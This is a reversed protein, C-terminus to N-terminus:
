VTASGEPPDKEVAEEKIEEVKVDKIDKPGLDNQLQNQFDNQNINNNVPENAPAPNKAAERAQKEQEYANIISDCFEIRKKATKSLSNFSRGEPLKYARYAKAAVYMAEKDGHTPSEPDISAETVRQLARYEKSTTGRWREWWGGRNDHLITPIDKGVNYGGPKRNNEAFKENFAEAHKKGYDRWSNKFGRLIDKHEEVGDEPFEFHHDNFTQVPDALFDIMEERLAEDEVSALSLNNERLYDLFYQRGAVLLAGHSFLSMTDNQSKLYIDPHNSMEEQEEFCDRLAKMVRRYEQDIPTNGHAKVSAAYDKAVPDFKCDENVYDPSVKYLDDVEEGVSFVYKIKDIEPDFYSGFFRDPDRNYLHSYERIVSTKIVTDISEENNPSTNYLFEMGRGGMMSIGSIEDYAKSSHYFVHAMRKGLTNEESRPLYINPDDKAAYKKVGGLYVKVPNDLFQQLSAEEAICASKLQSFGSLFVVAPAKEFDFKPPLNPRWNVIDGNEVNQPRGSYVNGPLAVNDLDFNKEIFDLVKDYKASVDKVEKTLDKIRDLAAKKEEDKKLKSYDTIARKLAYNKQFYDMLGYEKSGTEGGRPNTLLGEQSCLADLELIKQKYEPDYSIGMDLFPKFIEYNEPHSHFDPTVLTNLSTQNKVKTEDLGKKKVFADFDRHAKLTRKHSVADVANDVLNPGTKEVIEENAFGLADKLEKQANEDEVLKDVDKKMEEILPTLPHNAVRIEPSSEKEFLDELVEPHDKFEEDLADFIKEYDAEDIKIEGTQADSSISPFRRNPFLDTHKEMFVNFQDKGGFHKRSNNLLSLFRGLQYAVEKSKLVNQFKLANDPDNEWLTKYERLEALKKQFEERYSM